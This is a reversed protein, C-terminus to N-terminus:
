AYKRNDNVENLADVIRVSDEAEINFAKMTAVLSSISEEVGLESVNSMLTATTAVALLQEENFEGYTRALEGTANLVDHISNGLENAIGVSGEFLQDLSIGNSIVRQIEVLEADIQLIDDLVFRMGQRLGDFLYASALYAPIRQLSVLFHQFTSLNRNANYDLETFGKRLKNVGAETNDLTYTLSKAEKGASAFGVKIQTLPKGANTTVQKLQVTEANLKSIQSIYNRLGAVDDKDIFSKMTDASGVSDVKGYSDMRLAQKYEKTVAKLQDKSRELIDKTRKTSMEVDNEMDKLDKVLEPDGEFGNRGMEKSLRQIEDVNKRIKNEMTELENTMKNHNFNVMSKDVQGIALSMEKSDRAVSVMAKSQELMNRVSKDNSNTSDLQRLATNIKEITVVRKAEISILGDNTAKYEKLKANAQEVTINGAKLDNYIEKFANADNMKALTSSTVLAKKEFQQMESATSEVETQIKVLARAVKEMEAQTKDLNTTKILELKGTETISHQMKQVTGDVGKLVTEVSKLNGVGDRAETFSFTGEGSSGNARAFDRIQSELKGVSTGLKELAQKSEETGKTNILPKDGVSNMVAEYQRKFKQAQEQAKDLEKRLENSVNKMDLQAEIKIQTGKLQNELEKIQGRIRSASAEIDIKILMSLDNDM